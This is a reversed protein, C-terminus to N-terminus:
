DSIYFLDDKNEVLIIFLQSFKELEDKLTNEDETLPFIYMSLMLSLNKMSMKNESSKAAVKSLHELLKQSM